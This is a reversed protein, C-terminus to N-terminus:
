VSDTSTTSYWRDTTDESYTYTTGTSRRSSAPGDPHPNPQPRIGTSWQAGDAQRSITPTCTASGSAGATAVTPTCRTDTSVAATFIAPAPHPGGVPCRTGSPPTCTSPSSIRSASWGTTGGTFTSTNTMRPGPRVPASPRGSREPSSARGASRGSTSNTCTTLGVPGTTDAGYCSSGMTFSPSTASGGAQFPPTGWSTRPLTPRGRIWSASGSGRTSTSSGCTMSGGPATM